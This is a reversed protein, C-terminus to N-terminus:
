AEFVDAIIVEHRLHNAETKVRVTQMNDGGGYHSDRCRAHLRPLPQCHPLSLSACWRLHYTVMCVHADM